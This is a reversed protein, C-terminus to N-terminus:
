YSFIMLGKHQRKIKRIYKVQEQNSWQRKGKRNKREIKQVETINLM